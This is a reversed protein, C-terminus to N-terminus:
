SPSTGADTEEAALVAMAAPLGSGRLPVGCAGLGTEIGALLGLLTVGDLDGLHGIRLVRGALRGLGGGLAIDHRARLHARVAEADHGPPLRVATLAASHARPDRCQVKLGWAAVAARTAAALRAHRAFVQELGEEELLRLAEELAFLMATAPTYPFLGEANAEIMREWDFYGRPLRAHRRRAARARPGVALFALGPPLMLGKQVAGVTVDVGWEDHAYPAIALSSIVDVMLLAPHGVRDLAARVARVDSTVGTSTENHLLCVARIRGERDAALARAIRDPDAPTRWDGELIVPELHCERALAAWALAFHGTEPVLIRDGPALTNVLAAQWGGTGSAPYLVVPHRTGLLRQLGALVRRALARGAPGRHDVLPRLFARRIREPVPTPGPIRLHRSGADRPM